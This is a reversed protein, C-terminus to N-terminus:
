YLDKTSVEKVFGNSYGKLLKEAGNITARVFYASEDTGQLELAETIAVAGYKKEIAAKFKSPLKDQSLEVTSALYEGQDNFFANTKEGDITFSARMMNNSAETWNVNEAYAFERNFSENMKYTVNKNASSVGSANVSSIVTLALAAAIFIKKM